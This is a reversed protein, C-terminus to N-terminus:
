IKKRRKEYKKQYLSLETEMANGKGNLVTPLLYIVKKDKKKM